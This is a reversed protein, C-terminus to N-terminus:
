CCSVQIDSKYLELKRQFARVESMLGCVTSNKGQLKLNLDNLHHTIDTLFAVTEMKGADRLFELFQEAKASKQQSLFEQLENRIAWFRKLVRGKSLWRVNNHLLLDDFDADVETLFSRLLRHQLASSARLFNILKMMTTMVEGYEQGLKACLVSQHIICHYAMLGPHNARMRQVAGNERGIMAPAGDTAISVVKKVDIDKENLMASIVKYIDEGRTHGSLNALGLVDEIFEEKAEDYYRVFVVLQANDTIDTSEDVALSICQANKIGECLQKSVDKALDETRRTATDDSLPIKQIKATMVEREKGEFLTDMVETMCEKIMESDTFPKKHKGLIWAVKLSCETAKQQETLATCIKKRSYEYSIKLEKIKATREASNPPYDREFSSHSTEYHRKVNVHKLVAISQLCKLCMPKTSSPPLIFLYKDTWEDNFRRNEIDVKRKTAMRLRATNALSTGPVLSAVATVVVAAKRTAYIHARCVGFLNSLHKGTGYNVAM